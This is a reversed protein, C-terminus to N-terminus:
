KALQRMVGPLLMAFPNISLDPNGATGKVTFTAALFGGGKEPSFLKGVNPLRGPAANLGFIPVVTGRLDLGGKDLDIRGELTAGLAPNGLHGEHITMVDDRVRIPLHLHQVEFRDHSAQSWNFVSLHTAATLAAPPQRFAFPSVSIMGKFPPVRGTDGDGVQGSIQARGGELRDTMGTENLLRGLNDIRLMLQRGAEHPALDFAVGVPRVATFRARDLRDHRHELHATVGGLFKQTNYFLRDTAIDVTWDQGAPATSKGSASEAPGSSASGTVASGGQGEEPKADDRHLLTAIDLDQAHIRVAIAANAQTPLEIVADGNSRGIMFGNLNIAQVQGEVLRSDGEVHLDPGEASIRDLAVMKGDRLGIHASATTAIGAAKSWVPITLAAQTLDLALDLNAHGDFAAHYDSVLQATGQFLGNNAIHAKNLAQEDFVSVAHVTERLGGSRSLFNENLTADTPVGDLLGHGQLALKKETAELNGSAETLGRGLVVNGLTVHDFRARANVHIQDNEIHSSLPLTITESVKVAGAPHTFPLPHRSLLHLRPHALLTACDGLDCSLDLAITGTQDHAFLDSILMSGGDLHILGARAADSAPQTGHLFDIRLVDPAAFSFRAAVDRAPPVPRLWNVTAHEITLSADTKRPRLQDWGADSGLVADLHLSDTTGASLNNTVWRRAGKMLFRPWISGLHPVDLPTATLSVGGSIQRASRLSDAELHGHAQFTNTRGTDDVLAIAADSRDVVFRGEPLAIHASVHGSEVNLPDGGSQDITGKGLSLTVQGQTVPIDQLPGDGSPHPTGTSGKVLFFAQLGVPVHWDGAYPVFGRLIDPTFPPVTVRWSLDGALSASVASSSAASFGIPPEHGPSVKGEVLGTWAYDATRPDHHLMIHNLFLTADARDAYAGIGNASLAHCLQVTVANLDLAALHDLSLPNAANKRHRADPWDLDISGDEHRDLIIRGSQAALRTPEVRGRLLPGMRLALDVQSLALTASGDKRLIRLNQAKLVLEPHVHRLGPQWSLFLRGWSLRGAPRGTENSAQIAVPAFRSAIATVDLPGLSLRWLFALGAVAIIAVSTVVILTGLRFARWSARHFPDHPM